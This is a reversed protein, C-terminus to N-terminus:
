RLHRRWATILGGWLPYLGVSAGAGVFSIARGGDLLARLREFAHENGPIDRWITMPAARENNCLLIIHGATVLGPRETRTSLRRHVLAVLAKWHPDSRSYGVFLATPNLLLNEVFRFVRPNKDPRLQCDQAALTHPNALSGHLKFLHPQRDQPKQLRDYGPECTVGATRDAHKM